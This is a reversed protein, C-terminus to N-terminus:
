GTKEIERYPVLTGSVNLAPKFVLSSSYRMVTDLDFQGVSALPLLLFVLLGSIRYRM